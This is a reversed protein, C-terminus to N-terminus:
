SSPMYFWDMDKAHTKTRTTNCSNNLVPSCRACHAQDTGSM